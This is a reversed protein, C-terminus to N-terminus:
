NRFTTISGQVAANYPELLVRSMQNDQGAEYNMINGAGSMGNLEDCSGSTNNCHKYKVSKGCWWSSVKDNLGYDAMLYLTQGNYNQVCLSGSDSGRYNKDAFFVCCEDGPYNANSM